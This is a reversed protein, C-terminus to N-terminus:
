IWLECQPVSDFLTENTLVRKNNIRVRGGRDWNRKEIHVGASSGWFKNIVDISQTRTILKINMMWLFERQALSLRIM